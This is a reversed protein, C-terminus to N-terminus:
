LFPVWLAVPLYFKKGVFRQVRLVCIDMKARWKTARACKRNSTVTLHYWM